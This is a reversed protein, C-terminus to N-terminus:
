ARNVPPQFEPMYDDDLQVDPYRPAPAVPQKVNVQPTYTPMPRANMMWQSFASNWRVQRRDNAEAHFRFALAQQEVDLGRAAAMARHEDTPTWDEPLPIPTAKRARKKNNDSPEVSPEKTGAGAHRYAGESKGTTPTDLNAPLPPSPRRVLQYGDTLRRGSPDSRRQREIYGQEELDTLIDRVKRESLSVRRAISKQGPFCFGNGDAYDALTVLVFKHSSPLDQEYAWNVAAHSM